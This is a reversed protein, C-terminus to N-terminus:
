KLKEALRDCLPLVKELKAVIRKQEALPPLPILLNKMAKLSINQITSGTAKENAYSLFFKTSLLIKIFHKSIKGMLNFYCASKGLIIKEKNYFAINGLTGNISILVTKDTLTKKYKNYEIQNVRKTDAKIIIKGNKLNNGNIFYFEGKLDYNPTGHIGDGLISVVDGLRAWCWNEPIDFPIEDATIPPLPPAAKIKKEAILRLKEAQIDRLLARADGDTPLQKSLKGQIAQQLISKRLQDPFAKELAARKKEAADLRELLPMIKELKAVIRKQEALPPLPFLVKKGDETRLRPMKTGCSLNTAYNSFFPTIFFFKAYGNFIYKGFDLPLIESTCYGDEDAIFAKNLYPRLKGYLVNGKYFISKSSKANNGDFFKKNILKGSNKEIDELDLLFKGLTMNQPSISEAEGYNCIDGLRAWCWNEPIDFPIEDATIPPLPPAAKIKKEAILRLKEAQIDRLLARADGDTPLQESLKGQIAQQLISKRLADAIM